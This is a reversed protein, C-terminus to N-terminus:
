PLQRSKSEKGLEQGNQDLGNFVSQRLQEEKVKASSVRTAPCQSSSWPFGSDRLDRICLKVGVEGM